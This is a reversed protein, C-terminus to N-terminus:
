GARLVGPGAPVCGRPLRDGGIAAIGCVASLGFPGVLGALLGPHEGPHVGSVRHVAGGDGHEDGVVHEHPVAGPRDHGHGGLVVAVPFEGFREFDVDHAGDGYGLAVVAWPEAVALHDVGRVLLDGEVSEVDFRGLRS